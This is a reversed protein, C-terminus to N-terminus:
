IYNQGTRKAGLIRHAPEPDALDLSHVPTLASYHMHGAAATCCSKDCMSTRGPLDPDQGWMVNVQMIIPGQVFLKRRRPPSLNVGEALM